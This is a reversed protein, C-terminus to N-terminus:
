WLAVSTFMARQASRSLRVSRKSGAFCSKTPSSAALRSISWGIRAGHFIQDTVDLVHVGHLFYEDYQEGGAEQRQGCPRLVGPLAGGRGDDGIRQRLERGLGGFDIVAEHPFQCRGAGRADPLHGAHEHGGVLSLVGDHLVGQVAHGVVHGAFPSSAARASTRLPSASPIAAQVSLGLWANRSESSWIQEVSSSM